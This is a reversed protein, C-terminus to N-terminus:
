RSRRRGRWAACCSPRSCTRSRCPPPRARGRRRGGAGGEAATPRRTGTRGPAPRRSATAPQGAAGPLDDTANGPRSRRGGATSSAAAPAGPSSRSRRSTASPRRCCRARGRRAGLRARAPRARQRDRPRVGRPGDVAGPRRRPQAAGRITHMGSLRRWPEARVIAFDRELVSGFEEAAIETKGERELMAALADRLDVLLEVDLAAYVLWSQPLPRTSWDAASHEKALHIGLLEEVVAGLGVRPLGSCAPPSSPTSCVPRARPGVERLCTLDQSAAHM